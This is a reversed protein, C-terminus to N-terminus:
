ALFISFFQLLNLIFNKNQINEILRTINFIANTVAESIIKNEKRARGVLNLDSMDAININQKSMTKCQIQGEREM